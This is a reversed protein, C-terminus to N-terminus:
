HLFRVGIWILNVIGDLFVVIVSVAAVNEAEAINLVFSVVCLVLAVIFAAVSGTLFGFLLTAALLGLYWTKLGM